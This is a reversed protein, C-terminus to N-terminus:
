RAKAVIGCIAIDPIGLYPSVSALTVLASITEHHETAQLLGLM